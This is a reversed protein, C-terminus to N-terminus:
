MMEIIFLGLGIGVPAIFTARHKESALMFIVFVLEATLFMELFLGRVVSMGDSLRTGVKLDGPLLASVLAAAAISAVVQAVIVLGTRLLTNSGTLWMGVAVAPNFLGGGIRFFAWVNVALSLGFILSIYLMKSATAGAGEPQPSEPASNVVNTGGYAFFLFLFTGVFESIVAVIHNKTHISSSGLLTNRRAPHAPGHNANTPPNQPLSAM